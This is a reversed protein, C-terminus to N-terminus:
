EIHVVDEESDYDQGEVKVGPLLRNRQRSHQDYVLGQEFIFVLCQARTPFEAILRGFRTIKPM